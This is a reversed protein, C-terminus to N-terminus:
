SNNKHNTRKEHNKSHIIILALLSIIIWFLASLDNKFYPVDVLGHIFIASISSIIAVLMPRFVEKNMQLLKIAKIYINIFLLIFILLGMLGLEVWFNLAINHPYLYIELPQWVSQRFEQNYLTKRLWDPDQYDKIFIGEQHYPAVKQQYNLLGVGFFWNNDAQLMQWTEQWQSIRIQGSKDRLLAKDKIYTNTQSNLALTTLGIVILAIAIIRTKKNYILLYIFISILTAILAGESKAFYMALISILIIMALSIAYLKKKIRKLDKLYSIVLGLILLTIPALYLGLANPYPFVSTVRRTEAQAWFENFIYLGSIQQFIAVISIVLASLSLAWVIKKWDTKINFYNIILIYLMIPELFYAKFAGLASLSFNSFFVALYSILLIAIIEYKFPYDHIKKTNEKKIKNKLRKLIEPGKQVVFFAFVILIMAELFTMPLGLVEFRIMYTPLAFVIALIALKPRFATLITYFILSLMILTM